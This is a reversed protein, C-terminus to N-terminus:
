ECGVREPRARQANTATAPRPRATAPREYGDSPTSERAKLWGAVAPEHFYLRLGVRIGPLGRDRHWSLLVSKSVGLTSALADLPIFESLSTATMGNTTM